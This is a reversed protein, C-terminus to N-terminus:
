ADTPLWTAPQLQEDRGDCERAQSQDGCVSEGHRARAEHLVSAYRKQVVADLTPGVEKGHTLRLDAGGPVLKDVVEMGPQDHAFVPVHGSGNALVPDAGHFPM